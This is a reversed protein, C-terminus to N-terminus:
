EIVITRKASTHASFYGLAGGEMNTEPNAPTASQAIGPTNQSLSYLYKYMGHSICQMEVTVSDGTKLKDEDDGAPYRLPLTIRNGNTREDNRIFINDERVGNRYQVFRYQNTANAPDRFVVNVLKREDGFTNDIATFLSDPAVPYPMSSVATFQQGAASVSLTYTHGPVGTLSPAEYVGAATETFTTTNGAEDTISVTAGSIGEYDNTNDVAQTKSVVVIASGPQDTLIAEVVPSIAAADPKIDLVKECSALLSMLAISCITILTRNM